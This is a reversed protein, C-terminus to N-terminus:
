KWTGMATIEKRAKKRTNRALTTKRTLRVGTQSRIAREEASTPTTNTVSANSVPTMQARGTHFVHHVHSGRRVM